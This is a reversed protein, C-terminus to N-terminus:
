FVWAEPFLVRCSPCLYSKKDCDRRAEWPVSWILQEFCKFCALCTIMHRYDQCTPPLPVLIMLETDKSAIYLTLGDEATSSGIEFFFFLCSFKIAVKGGREQVPLYGGALVPTGAVEGDRCCSWGELNGLLSSITGGISLLRLGGWVRFDAM